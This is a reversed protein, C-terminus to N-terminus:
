EERLATVPNIRLARLAPVCCAVLATATVVAAVAAYTLPDAAEVGFLLATMFRSLAFAGLLGLAIGILIPRMGQGIVLGLISRSTAGLAIRLGIESTRRAVSYALVGYIGSIALLLAVGAFTALLITNFRRPALSRSVVEEVSLIDSLPLNSDIQALVSRMASVTKKPDNSTHVVLEAPSFGSGFYPIYVTRTPESDLGRERQNAVVGIIEASNQGQGKWIYMRQGIPDRGPWLLDALSQSVVVRWPKGIEDAETFVRGRLLPIGMTRFYDPTVFRWGAWPVAAGPADPAGVAGVGMGPDWGVIPRSTVAASSLVGPVANVGSLLQKLAATVREGKSSAYSSPFNVSVLLRNESQFGREVRLLRGFSRMLLGAGVLLILSLAVEVTVLAARLRMQARSGTQGREGERLASTLRAYSTQLAPALGFLFATLLTMLLTFALVSGNIGVQALRPIGGPDSAKFTDVMWSALVLGLSAGIVGLVLSETLVLRIIRIRSAGLTSRVAIERTRATSRALLLNALNVCAILLLFGVAAFLIWLAQRLTDRVLWRSGPEMIIGMGADPGPYQEALGKCVSELDSRAADVSIGRKLRGIVAYEFSGRNASPRFVFPVFIDAANLWPEGAPLVGVVTFPRGDLQLVKGVIGPDSGFRNRWFRDRLMAINNEQGPQDENPYFLRGLAPQVGLLPFFGASARAISVHEPDGFGTLNADDGHLAGIEEFTRSKARVDWFNAETFSAQNWGKQARSEWIQVLRDAEPFPLPQLLVAHFVSFIATTSGIGLALTAVALISSGPTRAITRLARRLDSLFITM